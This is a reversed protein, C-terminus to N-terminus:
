GPPAHLISEGAYYHIQGTAPYGAPIVYYSRIEGADYAQSAENVSELRTFLQETTPPLDGFQGSHDVLGAPVSPEPEGQVLRGLASSAAGAGPILSDEEPRALWNIGSFLLAVILPLGFIVFLVSRRRMTTWFEFRAVLAIKRLSNM